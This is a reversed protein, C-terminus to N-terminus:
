GIAIALTFNGFYHYQKIYMFYEKIKTRLLRNDKERQYYRLLYLSNEWGIFEHRVDKINLLKYEIIRYFGVIRTITTAKDFFILWCPLIILVPALFHVMNADFTINLINFVRLIVKKELGMKSGLGLIVGTATVSSWFYYVQCEKLKILENRLTEKEKQLLENSM